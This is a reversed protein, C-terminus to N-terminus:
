VFEDNQGKQQDLMKDAWKKFKETVRVYEEMYGCESCIYRDVIASKM